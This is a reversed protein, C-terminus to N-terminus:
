EKITLEEGTWAHYLNQLTHVFEILQTVNLHSENREIWVVGNEPNICLESGGFPHVYFSDSVTKNDGRSFGFKILWEETLPIPFCKELKWENDHGETHANVLTWNNDVYFANANGDLLTTVPTPKGYQGFILNGLRLEKADM